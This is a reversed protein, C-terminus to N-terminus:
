AVPVGSGWCIGPYPGDNELGGYGGGILEPFSFVFFHDLSGTSVFVVLMVHYAVDRSKKERQVQLRSIVTM